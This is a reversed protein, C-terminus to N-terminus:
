ARCIRRSVPGARQTTAAPCRNWPCTQRRGRAQTSIEVRGSAPQSRRRGHSRLPGAPRVARTRGGRGRGLSRREQRQRTIAVVQTQSPYHQSGFALRQFFVRLHEPVFFGLLAWVAVTAVLLKLRRALPQRPMAAM